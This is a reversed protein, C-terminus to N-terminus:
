DIIEGDYVGGNCWFYGPEVGLSGGGGVCDRLPVAQAGRALPIAVFLGTLIVGAVLRRIRRM